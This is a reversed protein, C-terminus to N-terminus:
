GTNHSQTTILKTYFDTNAHFFSIIALNQKKVKERFFRSIRGPMTGFCIQWKLESEINQKLHVINSIM